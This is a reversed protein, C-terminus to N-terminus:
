LYSGVLPGMMYELKEFSVLLHWKSGTKAGRSALQLGYHYSIGNSARFPWPHIVMEPDFHCESM